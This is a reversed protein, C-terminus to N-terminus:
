ILTVIVASADTMNTDIIDLNGAIQTQRCRVRNFNFHLAGMM